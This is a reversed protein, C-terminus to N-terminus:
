KKGQGPLPGGLKKMEFDSSCWLMGTAVPSFGGSSGILSTHLQV